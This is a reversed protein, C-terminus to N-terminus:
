VMGIRANERMKTIDKAIIIFRPDLEEKLIKRWYNKHGYWTIVLPDIEQVDDDSDM